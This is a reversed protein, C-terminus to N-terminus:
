IQAPGRAYASIIANMAQAERQPGMGIIQVSQLAQAKAWDQLRRHFEWQIHVGDRMLGDAQWGMDPATILTLDYSRHHESAAAMLANDQFYIQSYIAITIPACDSIMLQPSDENKLSSENSIQTQMLPWQEAKTPTRKERECFQRLVESIAIVPCNIRAPLGAALAQLLTSKGTCEAGVIAIKEM